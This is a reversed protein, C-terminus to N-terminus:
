ICCGMRAPCIPRALRSSSAERPWCRCFATACSTFQTAFDAPRPIRAAHPRRSRGSHPGAIEDLHFPRGHGPRCLARDHDRRCGGCSRGAAGNCDAARTRRGAAAWRPYRGARDDNRPRHGQSRESAGNRRDLRRRLPAVPRRARLTSSRAAAGFDRAEAHQSIVADAGGGDHRKPAATFDPKSLLAGARQDPRALLAARMAAPNKRISQTLQAGTEVLELAVTKSRDLATIVARRFSVVRPDSLHLTGFVYSPPIGERSVRFLTGHAFPMARADTEIAAFAEPAQAELIPFLDRGGCGAADGRASAAACCLAAALVARRRSMAYRGQRTAM